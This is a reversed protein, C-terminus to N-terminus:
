CLLKRVAIDGLFFAFIFPVLMGALSRSEPVVEQPFALEGADPNLSGGTARALEGCLVENNGLGVAELSSDSPRSRRLLPVVKRDSVMGDEMREVVVSRIAEVYPPLDGRYLRPAVQSVDVTVGDGGSHGAIEIRFSTEEGAPDFTELEIRKEGRERVMTAIYRSTSRVRMTWRLVQSWFKGFMSWRVMESSWRAEADSTFAVAKGLGYRWAALLPDRTGRVDTYLAVDARARATTLAYGLLEPMQEDRIGKLIGTEEGVKPEIRKELHPSKVMVRKTDQLITMVLRSSSTLPYYRGGTRGALMGLLNRDTRKGVGITSISVHRRSYSGALGQYDYLQRRKRQRRTPRSSSGRSDCSIGDTVLIVHKKQGYVAGMQVLAEELAASIRTGGGARVRRINDIIERRRGRVFELPVIVEYGFDFTIVGVMDEPALQEVMEMAALKATAIKGGKMSGSVDILLIICLRAKAERVFPVYKDAKVPLVKEIPTGRYGKLGFSHEGGLMVLGGGHDRVYREVMEMQERKFSASPVNSLFVCDYALLEEMEMPLMEPPGACVEIGSESLAETLFKRGEPTGSLCLVRPHGAVLLPRSITRVGGPPEADGEVALSATIECPGPTGIRHELEFESTGPPLSVPWEKVLKCGDLVTLNGGASRDGSNQALVRITFKESSNVEEPLDLKKLAAGSTGREPPMLCDIRIGSGCAQEAMSLADGANENGDSLIILHKPGARPFAMCSLAIASAIDTRDTELISSFADGAVKEAPPASMGCGRAFLVVAKRNKEGAGELIERARDAAWKRGADGMSDSVDVAAIVTAPRKEMKRGKIGALALILLLFVVTRLLLAAALSGRRARRWALFTVLWLPLVLWLCDLWRPNSFELNYRSAVAYIYQTIDM